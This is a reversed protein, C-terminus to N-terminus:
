EVYRWIGARWNATLLIHHTGDFVAVGQAAGIDMAEPSKMSAWGKLGPAPASQFHTDLKCGGCAWAFMGYIRNPSGFVMAQHQAAGVHTWTQGFDASRLIGHGHSSFQGPMFIVGSTDPQYIQMQGHPHENSDVRVWTAGADTTRWTGVRGGGHGEATWLWTSATTDARGTNIFFIVASGGSGKMGDNLRISTWTKGGDVSHVILDMHHGTMLVHNSDHPNVSVPYFGQRESPVRSQTWSVGGDTSKWFGAGSGRIGASYIIPPEGAPGRAVTLTGASNAGAGGRGVNIPGTWSLGYDESKWVGICNFQTYLNSPRAPDVQMTQSGFSDCNSKDNPDVNAPTVNVWSGRVQATGSAAVPVVCGISAALIAAVTWRSQRSRIDNSSRGSARSKGAEVRYGNRM